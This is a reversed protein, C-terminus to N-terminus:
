GRESVVRELVHEDAQRRRGERDATQVYARATYPHPSVVAEFGPGASEAMRRAERRVRDTVGRSTMLRNLGRLNLKVQVAM